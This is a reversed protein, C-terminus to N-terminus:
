CLKSAYNVEPTQSLEPAGGRAEGPEQNFKTLEISEILIETVVLVYM